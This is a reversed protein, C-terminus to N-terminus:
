HIVGSANRGDILKVFQALAKSRGAMESATKYMKLKAQGAFNLRNSWVEFEVSDKTLVEYYTNNATFTYSHYGSDIKYNINM